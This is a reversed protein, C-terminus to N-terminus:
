TSYLPIELLTVKHVQTAIPITNPSPNTNSIKLINQGSVRNALLYESESDSFKSIKKGLQNAFCLLSIKVVMKTIPSSM